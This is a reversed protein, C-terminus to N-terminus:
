FGVMIYDMSCFNYSADTIRAQGQFTSLTCLNRFVLIQRWKNSHGWFLLAAVNDLVKM